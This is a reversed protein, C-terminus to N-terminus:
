SFFGFDSHRFEFCVSISDSSHIFRPFRAAVLRVVKFLPGIEEGFVDAGEYLRQRPRNGIDFIRFLEDARGPGHAGIVDLGVFAETLFVKQQLYFRASLFGPFRGAPQPQDIDIAIRCLGVGPLQENLFGGFQHANEARNKALALSRTTEGM